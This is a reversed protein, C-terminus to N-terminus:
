TRALSWHIVKILLTDNFWATAIIGSPDIYISDRIQCGNPGIITVYYTTDVVPTAVPNPCDYCSLGPISDWIFTSGAATNTQVFVTDGLCIFQDETLDATLDFVDVNVTDMHVCGNDYFASVFYTQPTQATATPNQIFPDSLTNNFAWQFSVSGPPPGYQKFRIHPRNAFTNNVNPALNCGIGAVPLRRICRQIVLLTLISRTLVM